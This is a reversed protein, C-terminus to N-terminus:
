HKTKKPHNESCENRRRRKEYGKALIQYKKVLEQRVLREQQPTLDLHLAKELAKVRFRDMGWHKRSLQDAHGGRKVILTKPLLCVPYKAAIRIGLDYDECVPLGEDFRGVKDFVERRFM